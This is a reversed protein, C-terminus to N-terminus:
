KVKDKQKIRCKRTRTKKVEKLEKQKQHRTSDQVKHLKKVTSLKQSKSSHFPPFTKITTLNLSTNKFPILNISNKPDKHKYPNPYNEEKTKTTTKPNQPPSNNSVMYKGVFPM